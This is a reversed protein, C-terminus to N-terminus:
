FDKFIAQTPIQFAEPIEPGFLELQELGGFKKDLLEPAEATLEELAALLWM